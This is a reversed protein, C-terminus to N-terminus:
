GLSGGGADPADRKIHTVVIALAREGYFRRDSGPQPEENSLPATPCPVLPFADGLRTIQARSEGDPSELLTSLSEPSM